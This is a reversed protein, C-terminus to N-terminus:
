NLDKLGSPGESSARLIGYSLLTISAFSNRIGFDLGHLLERPVPTLNPNSVV